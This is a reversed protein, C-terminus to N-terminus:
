CPQKRLDLGAYRMVGDVGKYRTVLRTLVWKLCFAPEVVAYQQGLGFMRGGDMFLPFEDIWSILTAKLESRASSMSEPLDFM